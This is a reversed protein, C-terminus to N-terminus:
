VECFSHFFDFELVPSFPSLSNQASFLFTQNLKHCTVTQQSAWEHHRLPAGGVWDFAGGKDVTIVLSSDAAIPARHHHDCLTAIIVFTTISAVIVVVPAARAAATETEAATAAAAAANSDRCHIFLLPV